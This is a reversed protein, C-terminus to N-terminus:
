KNEINVKRIKEGEFEYLDLFRKDISSKKLIDYYKQSNKLDKKRLFYQYLIFNSYIDNEKSLKEIDAEIQTFIDDTNSMAFAKKVINSRMFSSVKQSLIADIYGLILPYKPASESAFVSASFARQAAKKNGELALIPLYKQEISELKYCSNLHVTQFEPLTLLNNEVGNSRLFCYLKTDKIGNYLKTIYKIYNYTLNDIKKDKFKNIPFEKIFDFISENECIRFIGIPSGNRDAIYYWISALLMDDYFYDYYLAISIAADKNGKFGERSLETVKEDTLYFVKNNYSYLIIVHFFITIYLILVKNMFRLIRRRCYSVM